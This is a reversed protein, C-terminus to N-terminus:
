ARHMWTAPTRPQLPGDAGGFVGHDTKDWFYPRTLMEWLAKFVAVTALPFYLTMIPSWLWLWRRDARRAAVLSTVITLGESLVFLTVLALFMGQPMAAVLPHPVGALHLWFSWVLPATFLQMLTGLFLIQLGVFRWAGVDRLLQMPRAMHVAYTMAYGKLWRSRQRVWPWARANAEEMTVTDILETRYGRRALRVGLDADETVNHADWGKVAEIAERRLFLTTGGLPVVLGLRALGPLILRFWTAYELTFSRAIWNTGSNYFDLVGQLCAVNAGREAFRQVIRSIQDPAPADEADYIGIISGKAFDLAYNLARPKTQLTGGPVTIIQANSPLSTAELTARTIRDGAELILCIDLRDAPYDLRALRQLLHGAIRQERFLPVLLSVVPRQLPTPEAPTAGPPSVPRTAAVLAAVKFSTMVILTLVAAGLLLAFPALPIVLALGSMAFLGVLTWRRAAGIRWGRCSLAAPVKTEAAAALDAGAIRVLAARTEGSEALALRCPGLAHTLEEHHRQFRGPADTLVVCDSGCQRWPLLGLRAARTAGLREILRPDPPAITPDIRMPWGRARNERGDAPVEAEHSVARGASSLAPGQRQPRAREALEARNVAREM